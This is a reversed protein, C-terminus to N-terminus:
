RFRKYGDSTRTIRLTEQTYDVMTGTDEETPEWALAGEGDDPRGSITGRLKRGYIGRRFWVVVAEGAEDTLRKIEKASFNIAFSGDGQLEVSVERGALPTGKANTLRLKFALKTEEASVAEAIDISEQPETNTESDAMAWGRVTLFSM